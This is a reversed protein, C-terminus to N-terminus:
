RTRHIDGGGFSRGGTFRHSFILFFGRGARGESLGQAPLGKYLTLNEHNQHSSGNVGTEVSDNKM